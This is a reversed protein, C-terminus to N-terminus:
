ASLRAKTTVRRVAELADGAVVLPAAGKTEWVRAADPALRADFDPFLRVTDQDAFNARDGVDLYSEVTLGEALIVAHMPLEVHYYTVTARRTQVISTGNILLKVPVLVGDVFVAHDPSLYLDRVPVNRGFAGAAVRVPWVTEPKPHRECAVARSGIWVVPEEVGDATLLTDGVRLDEVAVPGHETAIRTGEAFCAMITSGNMISLSAPDIASAFVIQDIGGARAGAGSDSVTLTTGNIVGLNSLTGGTIVFMDGPQYAAITGGFEAIDNLLLEGAASGFGIATGSGVAGGLMWRAGPDITVHGFNQYKSGLGGISGNISGVSAGSLLELTALGADAASSAGQVIGGFSAGPAMEILNGVGAKAASVATTGGIVGRNIVTTQYYTV